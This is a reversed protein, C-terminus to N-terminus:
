IQREFNCNLVNCTRQCHEIEWRRRLSRPHNWLWPLPTKLANGVPPLWFCLLVNGYADVAMDSHGANCRLGNFIGPQQFYQKFGNLQGVSNCVPGGRERVDILMDIMEDMLPFDEETPLYESRQVWTPDFPSGFNHFVPQFILFYERREAEALLGPIEGLSQKHMVSTIVTRVRRHNEMIDLARLAKHYTGKKGRLRDHTEPRIGDISIFLEELGADELQTALEETLLVGNTNSTVTFGQAAGHAILQPLDERMLPEGGSFNLAVPGAWSAMQDFVGCWEGTTLERGPPNKWIDCMKCPLCCRETIAVHLQEPLAPARSVHLMEQPHVLWQLM